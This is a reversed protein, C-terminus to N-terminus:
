AVKKTSSRNSGLRNKTLLSWGYLLAPVAAYLCCVVPVAYWRVSLLIMIAFVIAVVHPFSRKGRLLQGVIHPYPIRSVMLLAISIAFLPLIRQIWFDYGAFNDHNIENRLTYSLIAASAIVAAAAPTPLGAFTSHDDSEDTEVNFRALRLAACCAFLAAISWIAERHVSTFQPCMKVLLIAPAVGFSVM